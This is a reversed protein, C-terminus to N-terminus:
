SQWKWLVVTRGNLWRHCVAELVFLRQRGVAVRARRGDPERKLTPPSSVRVTYSFRRLFTRSLVKLSLLRPDHRSM